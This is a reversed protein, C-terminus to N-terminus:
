ADVVVELRGEIRLVNVAIGSARREFLLDARGAGVRLRKVEVRKVFEPLLPRTVRLRQDFAEPTIGLMVKLLYPLTGAAWAQPQCAVPYNVPVGYDERRFGAFLEPLRHGDFHVAADLLGVFVRLAAEDLGYRRFGAAILSNDHPWVTGLHYGLPNYYLESESLTRIGWGNFM